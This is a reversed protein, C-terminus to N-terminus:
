GELSWLFRNFTVNKEEFAQTGQINERRYRALQNNLLTIQEDLQPNQLGALIDLAKRYEANQIATKAERVLRANDTSWPIKVQKDGKRKWGPLLRM